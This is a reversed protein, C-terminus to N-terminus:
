PLQSGTVLREGKRGRERKAQEKHKLIDRVMQHFASDDGPIATRYVFLIEDKTASITLDIVEFAAM